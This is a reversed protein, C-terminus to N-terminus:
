ITTQLGEPEVTNKWMINYIARIESFFNDFIVYTIKNEKCSKDSANRIVLIVSRSIIM